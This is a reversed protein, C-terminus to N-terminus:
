PLTLTPLDEPCELPTGELVGERDEGEGPGELTVQEQLRRLSEAIERKIQDDSM